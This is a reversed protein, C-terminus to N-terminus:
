WNESVIILHTTQPDSPHSHNCSSFMLSINELKEMTEHFFRGYSVITQEEKSFIMQNGERSTGPTNQTRSFANLKFKLVNKVGFRLFGRPLTGKFSTNITKTRLKILFRKLTGSHETRDSQM